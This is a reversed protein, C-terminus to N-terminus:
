GEVEEPVTIRSVDLTRSMLRPLLMDRAKKLTTNQSIIAEIQEFFPRVLNGFLKTLHGPPKV